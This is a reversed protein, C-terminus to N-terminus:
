KPLFLSVVSASALQEPADARGWLVRFNLALSLLMICTAGALAGRSVRRWSQTSALDETDLWQRVVARAFWPPAALDVPAPRASRAAAFLRQLEPEPNNM